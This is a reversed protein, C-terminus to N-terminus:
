FSYHVKKEQDYFFLVQQKKSLKKKRKEKFDCQWTFERLSEGQRVSSDLFHAVGLVKTIYKDSFCKLSAKKFRHGTHTTWKSDM